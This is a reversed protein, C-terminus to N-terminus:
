EIALTWQMALDINNGSVSLPVSTKWSGGTIYKQGQQDLTTCGNAITTMAALWASGVDISDGEPIGAPISLFDISWGIPDVIQQALSQGGAYDTKKAPFVFTQNNGFTHLTDLATSLKINSPDGPLKPLKECSLGAVNAESIKSGSTHKPAPNGTLATATSTWATSAPENSPIAISSKSNMSSTMHPSAPVTNFTALSQGTPTALQAENASPRSTSQTSEPGLSIPPSFPPLPLGPLIASSGSAFLSSSPIASSAIVADTTAPAISTPAGQADKIIALSAFLLWIYTSFKSVAMDFIHTYNKDINPSYHM